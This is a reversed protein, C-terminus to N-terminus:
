IDVRGFRQLSLLPEGTQTLEGMECSSHNPIRPVSHLPAEWNARGGLGMHSIFSTLLPHSPNRLSLKCDCVTSFTYVHPYYSRLELM